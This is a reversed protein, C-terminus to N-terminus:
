QMTKNAWLQIYRQLHLNVQSRDITRKSLGVVAPETNHETASQGQCHSCVVKPVPRLFVKPHTGSVGSITKLFSKLQEKNVYNLDM